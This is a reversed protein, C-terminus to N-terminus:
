GVSDGSSVDVREFIRARYNAPRFLNPHALLMESRGILVHGGEKLVGHFQELVQRRTRADFYMLTNRCVVLDVAPVPTEGILDHERFEVVGRLDDRLTCGDASRCFYRDRLAPSIATLSAPDYVARRAVALAGADVDTAIVRVRERLREIGFAEELVMLLTCTEEGTACGANWIRITNGSAARSALPILTTRALEAWVEPDRFFGTVHVFLQDFLAKSEAADARIHELYAPLAGIGLIDARTRIRRELSSRRYGGFDFGHRASVLALIGETCERIQPGTTLSRTM